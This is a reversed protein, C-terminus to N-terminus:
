AIAGAADAGSVPGICSAANGLLRAPCGQRGATQAATTLPPLLHRRCAASQGLELLLQFLIAEPMVDRRLPPVTCVGGHSHRTM